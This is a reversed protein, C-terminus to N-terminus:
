SAASLTNHVSWRAGAWILATVLAEAVAVGAQVGAMGLLGFGLTVALWWVLPLQVLWQGAFPIAAGIRTAGAGRIAFCLVRGLTDAAVGLGVIRIPWVAIELTAPDRLFLGLLPRTAAVAILTFPASAAVGLVATRWGWRRAEAVDGRGLTQGVLTAAAVGLGVALQSPVMVLSILVNAAAVQAVGLRALIVYAIMLGLQLLAQQLSIPWGIAAVAGAGAARPARGAFGPAAGLRAALWLQLAVGVLGAFSIAAGAGAAGLGALPGVGFVLAFTAAIQLPALVATVFLAIHPRGSGIWCANIPITAAFFVLSPAAARLYAAGALAADRHPSMASLVGRAAWWAGVALLAGLPLTLALADALIQGCGESRGAGVRRSVMAQVAADAGFMLALVVGYVAGAAGAGALAADGLRGLMAISALSAASQIAFFATLPAALRGISNLPGAGQARAAAAAGGIEM